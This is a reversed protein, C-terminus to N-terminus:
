FLEPIPCFLVHITGFEQECKKTPLQIRQNHPPPPSQNPPYNAIQSLPTIQLLQPTHTITLTHPPYNAVRQTTNQVVVGWVGFLLM